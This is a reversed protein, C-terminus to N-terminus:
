NTKTYVTHTPYAFEIGYEKFRKLLDLNFNEQIRLYEVYESSEVYYVVEFILASDGFTTFHVRDIRGGENADFSARVLEPVRAVLVPDTEYTIGFETVIRREKMKKFNHVRTTTLETNAVVLEEGQITRIRTTKIGIKEITGSDQGITVFDGIRFPKDFYLSFSAFLDSLIGQLALAVAIGGIGLGAILSTVEIGLNSLVFLIGLSWLAIRAVLTIMHAATTAHAEDTASDDNSTRVMRMIVFNLVRLIIEIAQWVLAAYMVGYLIMEPIRPLTFVSAAVVVSVLSYVWPRIDRIAEILVNDFVVNTREALTLLRQVVIHKVIYFLINLGLFIALALLWPTFNITLDGYITVDAAPVAALYETFPM